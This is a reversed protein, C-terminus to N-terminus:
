EGVNMRRFFEHMFDARDRAHKRGSVTMLREPIHCLKVLYERYATDERSYEPSNRAEAETNHLRAGLRGAYHFARGIGVAGISDLKDADHLVKDVMTRPRVNGRYRHCRVADCVARIVAADLCGQERLIREAKEAGLVAHCIKGGSAFEEPRACDHLLSALEILLKEEETCAEEEALVRANKLVRLTHDFDHCGDGSALITKIQQQVTERLQILEIATMM